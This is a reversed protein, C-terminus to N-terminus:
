GQQENTRMTQICLIMPDHIMQEDDLCGRKNSAQSPHLNNAVCYKSITKARGAREGESVEKDEKEM